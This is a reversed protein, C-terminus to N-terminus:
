AGHQAASPDPKERDLLEYIVPIVLLTLLTGTSEGGIIAIALPRQLEAGAGLGLAMPILACTTTVSTMVIPRLRLASGQLVAQRLPLGERRLRNITDIKVIADNVIIGTLVVGGILAVVNMSQGTLTLALVVGVWGLPLSVLIVFPHKISEFQAAMVMYVLLAALGLAYMLSRFSSQVAEQEGAVVYRYGPPFSMEALVAEAREIAESLRIGTLTATIGIERLRDTHTIETPGAAIQQDVLERMPIPGNATPLTRDLVSNLGEEHSRASVRIDIRRDFEAFQTDTLAGELAGVLADTVQRMPVGYRSVADRDIALRIEPNGRANHALVDDLGPVERLRGAAEAALQDLVDLDDGRLAIRFGVSEGGMLMQLPTREPDIQITAERFRDATGRVAEMAAEQREVLSRSRTGGMVVTVFARTPSMATAGSAAGPSTATELGVTAFTSEVGDVSRAAADIDRVMQELRSFPTGPPADVRVEFRGTNVPPMLEFPLHWAVWGGFVMLAVAGLVTVARHHLCWDLAAHYLRAFGDYLYGFAATLPALLRGLLWLLGRLWFLPLAVAWTGVFVLLRLM